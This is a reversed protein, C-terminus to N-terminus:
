GKPPPTGPSGSAWQDAAAETKNTPNYPPNTSPPTSSSAQLTTHSSGTADLPQRSPPAPTPAAQGGGLQAIFENVLSHWPDPKSLAEYLKAAQADMNQGATGM